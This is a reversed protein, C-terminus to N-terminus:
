TAARSIDSCPSAGTEDRQEPLHSQPPIRGSRPHDSARKRRILDHRAMWDHVLGAIEDSNDDAMLAHSNGRIGRAPLDVWEAEVGAAVLAAHWRRVNPLSNVWFPHRDLYDGWVFLHPVGRLRAPDAAQPDPAGSPELSIVARVRDPAALAARLGFNGGQSHTLIMAGGLQAVLADYAAQTFADNTSWRPVFQSMFAEMHEARFRLGPHTARQAPDPRWSGPPGFRFTEEWAERATRFFPAEPYVEPYPAWSARGREVADSVFVDLGARLFFMQWGPRGDPTTEWTVGTMGGGHWLLLPAAGRPEALRVYQVYLQGVMIEGNPDTPHVPGGPTSVRGRPPLGALTTMHGGLLFSGIDRILIPAEPRSTNLNDMTTARRILCPDIESRRTAPPPAEPGCIVTGDDCALDEVFIIEAFSDVLDIPYTM